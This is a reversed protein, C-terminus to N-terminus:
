IKLVFKDEPITKEPHIGDEYRKALLQLEDKSHINLKEYIHRVHTKVTSQSLGLSACIYGVSRNGLLFSAVELERASLRYSEFVCAADVAGASGEGRQRQSSGRAEFADRDPVVAAGNGWLRRVADAAVLVAMLMIALTEPAVPALVRRLVIGAVCLIAAACLITCILSVDGRVRCIMSVALLGCGALYMAFPAGASLMWLCLGGVMFVPAATSVVGLVGRHQSFSAAVLLVSLLGASYDANNAEHGMLGMGFGALVVLLGLPVVDGVAWGLGKIGRSAEVFPPHKQMLLLPIAAAFPFAFGLVLPPLMSQLVRVLFGGLLASAYGLVEARANSSPKYPLLLMLLSAVSYGAAVVGGWTFISPPQTLPHGLMFFAFACELVVADIVCLIRCVRLGFRAVLRASFFGAFASVFFVIYLDSEFSAPAPTLTYSLVSLSAAVLASVPLGWRLVARIDVDDGDHRLDDSASQAM